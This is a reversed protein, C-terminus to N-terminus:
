QFKTWFGSLAKAKPGFVADTFYSSAARKVAETRTPYPSIMGAIQSLKLDGAMALSITNIIEGAHSGLVSAGILKGKADLYLKVGGDTDREAIARDNEDFAFHLTRAADRHSAGITGLEPQTYIVAPMRDTTAKAFLGGLGPPLFYLNKILASAHFGAAHTLGGKGAAIDGAAYVRRNSTRLADDTGIGHRDYAVGGKELDLGEVNPARGAAMLLHSGTIPDGNEFEVTITGGSAQSIRETRAPARFAVGEAKLREILGKAHDPDNRALPEAIDIITVESGLRRFSQGLELGIPGSGVIMLHDPLRDVQFISENTLYDVTDLGPIPVIAARSGAAVVIRKARVEHGDSVITRDDAFRADEKIVTVGFGTYREVSDVPAIQDIVGQIHAKVAEFDIGPESPAIGYESGHRRGHAVKAAKILAKSPVCGTNLCDGGMDEREFLVVSRGLHSAGYAVSLGASGAGIVCLDVTHVTKSM